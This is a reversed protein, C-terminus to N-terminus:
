IGRTAGGDIDISAGHIYAASDSALFAVLRGIESPEAFREIGLSAALELTAQGASLGRERAFDETRRQQRDTNVYGPNVCNVRIGEAKGLDAIAKTFNLLASNVSGGITFDASPTRSGIGVINVIAGRQEALHKWTERVLRVAGHFKLAFGDHWNEDSLEVFAGRKTAGASNVLLDIKGFTMVAFAVVRAASAPDALDAGFGAARVGFTGALEAANRDLEPQRRAVLLINYGSRALEYAIAHGIGQSGGTVIATKRDSIAIPKQTDIM